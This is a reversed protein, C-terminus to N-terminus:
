EGAEKFLDFYPKCKMEKLEVADSATKGLFEGPDLNVISPFGFLCIETSDDNDFIVDMRLFDPDDTMTVKAETIRKSM